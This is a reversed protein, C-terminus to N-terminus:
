VKARDQYMSMQFSQPSCIRECTNLMKLKYIVKLVELFNLNYLLPSKYHCLIPEHCVSVISRIQWKPIFVNLLFVSTMNLKKLPLCTESIIEGRQVDVEEEVRLV